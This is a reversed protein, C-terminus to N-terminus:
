MFVNLVLTTISVRGDCTQVYGESNSAPYQHQCAYCGLVRAGDKLTGPRRM